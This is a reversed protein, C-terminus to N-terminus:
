QAPAPDPVVPATFTMLGTQPDVAYSWGDPIATPVTPTLGDHQCVAVAAAAFQAHFAFSPAADVGLADAIQQPTAGQGNSWFTAYVESLRAQNYALMEASIERIRKAAVQAPTTATSTIPM